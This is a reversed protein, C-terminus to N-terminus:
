SFEFSMNTSAHMKTEQKPIVGIPYELWWPCANVEWDIIGHELLTPSYMTSEDKVDLWEKTITPVEVLTENDICQLFLSCACNFLLPM